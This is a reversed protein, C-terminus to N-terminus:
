AREALVPRCADSPPTWCRESRECGLTVWPFRQAFEELVFAGELRAHPAGLCCHIDHGFAIHHATRHTEFADPDESRAPDHNAALLVPAAM